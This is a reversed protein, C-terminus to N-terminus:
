NVLIRISNFLCSVDGDICIDLDGSYDGTEIAKAHFVVDNSSSEPIDKKFEFIHQAWADYEEVTNPTTSVILIGDLFDNDIDISRLEHTKSDENNVTIIFDFTEGKTVESPIDKYVKVSDPPKCGAQITVFCIFLLFLLKKM